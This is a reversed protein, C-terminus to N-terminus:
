CCFAKLKHHWLKPKHSHWFHNNWPHNIVLLSRLTPFSFSFKQQSHHFKQHCVRSLFQSIFLLRIIWSIQMVNLNEIAFHKTTKPSIGNNLMLCKCEFSLNDRESTWRFFRLFGLFAVFLRSMVASELHVQVPFHNQKIRCNDTYIAISYTVVRYCKPNMGPSNQTQKWKNHCKFLRIM